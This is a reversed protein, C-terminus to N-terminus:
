IKHKLFEGLGYRNNTLIDYFVWAPNNTYVKDDRLNGDWAQPLPNNSGDVVPVGTSANRSYLAVTEEPYVVGGVTRGETTTNEDRTIYNSPVSVKLGKVEYSRRPLNPFQKSNFSLSAVATHPFNLRETLIASCFKYYVCFYAEM